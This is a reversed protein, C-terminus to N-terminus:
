INRTNADLMYVENKNGGRAKKADKNEEKM